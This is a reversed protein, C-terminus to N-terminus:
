VFRLDYEGTPSPVNIQRKPSLDGLGTARAALSYFGPKVNAFTFQGLQVFNRAIELYYFGDDGFTNLRFPIQTFPVLAALRIASGVALTLLALGTIWPSLRGVWATTDDLAPAAQPTGIIKARTAFPAM